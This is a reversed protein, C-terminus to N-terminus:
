FKFIWADKFRSLISNRNIMARDKSDFRDTYVYYRNRDKNYAIKTNLGRTKLTKVSTKANKLEIFSAVVVYFGPMMAEQNDNVSNINYIQNAAFDAVEAEGYHKIPERSYKMVWSSPFDGKISEQVNTAQQTANLGFLDSYLYHSERDQNYIISTVIGKNNLELQKAKADDLSTVEELIVYTGDQIQTKHDAGDSINEIYDGSYDRFEEVETRSSYYVDEARGELTFVWAGNFGKQRQERSYAWAQQESGLPFKEVFIYHMEKDRNYVIGAEINLQKYKNVTREANERKVFSHVVVYNGPEISFGHTDEGTSHVIEDSNGYDYEASSSGTNTGGSNNNNAELEEVNTQLEDKEEKLKEIEEELMAVKEEFKTTTSALIAEREKEKNENMALLENREIINKIDRNRKEEQKGFKYATGGALVLQPGHGTYPTIDAAALMASFPINLIKWNFAVGANLNTGSWEVLFSSYNTLRMNVAGFAYTGVPTVDTDFQGINLAFRGVGGGLTYSFRSMPSSESLTYRLDHTIAVYGNWGTNHWQRDASKRPIFDGRNGYLDFLGMNEGGVAIFVGKAIHRHLKVGFNYLDAESVDLMNLNLEVGINRMPNGLGVGGTLVFDATSEFDSFTQIQTLDKHEPTTPGKMVGGFYVMTGWAGTGGPVSIGQSYIQMPMIFILFVIIYHIPKLKKM